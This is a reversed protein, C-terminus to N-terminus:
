RLCKDGFVFLVRDQTLDVVARGQGVGVGDSQENETFSMSMFSVASGVGVLNTHGDCSSRSQLMLLFCRFM